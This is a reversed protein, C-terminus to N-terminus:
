NFGCKISYHEAGFSYKFEIEGYNSECRIGSVYSELGKCIDTIISFITDSNESPYFHIWGIQKLEKM